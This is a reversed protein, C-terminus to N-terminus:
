YIHLSELIRKTVYIRDTEQCLGTEVGYQVIKKIGDYVM